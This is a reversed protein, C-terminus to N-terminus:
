SASRRGSGPQPTRRYCAPIVSQAPHATDTKEAEQKRRQQGGQCHREAAHRHDAIGVSELAPLGCQLQLNYIVSSGLRCDSISCIMVGSLIRTVRPPTAAIANMTQNKQSM